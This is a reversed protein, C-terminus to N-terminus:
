PDQSSDYKFILRIMLFFLISLLNLALSAAFIKINNMNMDGNVDGSFLGNYFSIGMLIFFIMNHVLSFIINRNLAPIWFLVSLMAWIRLYAYRGDGTITGIGLHPYANKIQLALYLTGVLAYAKPLNRLLYRIISPKGRWKRSLLYTILVIILYGSFFTELEVWQVFETFDKWM